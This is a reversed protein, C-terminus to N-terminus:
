SSAASPWKGPVTVIRDGAPSSTGEHRRHLSGLVRGVPGDGTSDPDARALQRDARERRAGHDVRHEHRLVGALRQEGGRERRRRDGRHEDREREAARGKPEGRREGCREERAQEDGVGDDVVQGV